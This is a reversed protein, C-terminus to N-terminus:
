IIEKIKELADEPYIKNMGMTGHGVLKIDRPTIPIIKNSYDSYNTPTDGFLGYSSIGLGACLHMFGTDNGIYIKSGDILNISEKISKECLSIIKIGLFKKKLQAAVPQEDIGGAILFTYKKIKTIEEILKEFYDTSWKKTPGSGGVGLIITDNNNPPINKRYIKYSFNLNQNNLWKACSAKSREVINENKKVWGYFYVNKVGALKCILPYRIGYHFIYVKEYLNKKIFKILNLNSKQFDELFFIDKIFPDHELTEKACTRKKTLLDVKSNVSNLCIEHIAPLFVCLDGIGPRTQIILTKM